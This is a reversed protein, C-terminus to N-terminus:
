KQFTLALQLGIFTVKTDAVHGNLHIIYYNSHHEQEVKYIVHVFYLGVVITVIATVDAM